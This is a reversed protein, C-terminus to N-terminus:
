TCIQGSKQVIWERIYTSSMKTNKLMEADEHNLKPSTASIVDIVYTQLPPLSKKSRHEAVPISTLERNHPPLAPHLQSSKAGSMTETSVVLGQINPDWGTPGYVDEIPVLDYILDPRFSKLFKRAHEIRTPLDQLIEKYKKSKLLADDIL